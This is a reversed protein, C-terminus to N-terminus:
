KEKIANIPSGMPKRTATNSDLGRQNIRSFIVDHELLVVEKFSSSVLHRNAENVAIWDILSSLSCAYETANKISDFDSALEAEKGAAAIYEASARNDHMKCLRELFLEINVAVNSPISIVFSISSNTNEFHVCTKYNNSGSKNSFYVILLKTPSLICSILSDAQEWPYEVISDMSSCDILTVKDPEGLIDSFNQTIKLLWDRRVINPEKSAHWFAFNLKESM